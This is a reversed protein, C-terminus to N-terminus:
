RNDCFAVIAAQVVDTTEVDCGCVGNFGNFVGRATGDSFTAHTTSRTHPTIPKFGTDTGSGTDKGFFSASPCDPDENIGVATTAGLQANVTDRDTLLNCARWRFETSVPRKDDNDRGIGWQRM